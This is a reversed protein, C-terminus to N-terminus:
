EHVYYMSKEFCNIATDRSDNMCACLCMRMHTSCTHHTHTLTSRQYQRQNFLSCTSLSKSAVSFYSSLSFSVAYCRSLLSGCWFLLLYLVPTRHREFVRRCLRIWVCIGVYATFHISNFSSISVCVAPTTITQLWLERQLDYAYQKIWLVADCVAARGSVCGCIMAEHSKMNHHANNYQFQILLCLCAISYAICGIKAYNTKFSYAIIFYLKELCPIFFFFFYQKNVPQFNACPVWPM